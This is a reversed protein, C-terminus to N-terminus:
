SRWRIITETLRRGLIAKGATPLLRALGQRQGQAALSFYTKLSRLPTVFERERVFQILQIRAQQLLRAREEPGYGFRGCFPEVLAHIFHQLERLERRTCREVQYMREVLRRVSADDEPRHLLKAIARRSVEAAATRQAAPDKATLGDPNIRCEVCPEEVMGVETVFSMRSWLDYDQTYREPRYYGLQQAVDRRFMVTSHTLPNSFLLAWRVDASHRETRPPQRYSKGDATLCCYRTGVLGIEPHRDLEDVQMRLRHPLSVDDADTRAIYAGQAQGLALNAAVYPGLNRETDLVRMRPDRQYSAIIKRSDDTSSDNVLWYEFDGFSQGLISEITPRLHRAGNYVCTIVSVKPMLRGGSNVQHAASM